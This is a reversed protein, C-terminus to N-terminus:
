KNQRVITVACYAYAVVQRAVSGILWREFLTHGRHGVVIHDIAHQEAYRVLQEAPHGIVLQSHAALGDNALRVKLASLVRNYRRQVDELAAETEVEDGFDPPRAVVLAHLEAAYRKAMEAAFGYANDSSASGDYGLLIRRIM